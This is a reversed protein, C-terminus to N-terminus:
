RIIFEIRRNQQRGAESENTAVPYKSGKGTYLLRSQSIGKDILFQYVAKARKKSLDLNYAPTGLNDTHGRIEVKIDNNRMLFDTLVELEPISASKLEYKDLDFFINELTAVSGVKVKQLQINVTDYSLLQNTQRLNVDLERFLYGPSSVYMGYDGGENLVILYSGNVSDADIRFIKESSEKNFIEIKAGLYEGTEADSVKGSLYISKVKVRDDKPVSFQYVESKYSFKIEEEKSFYGTTGDPTIFLSIQDELDNLPYGLNKPTSWISDRRFASFLDYGGFGPHGKSAFFLTKGNAHIFP